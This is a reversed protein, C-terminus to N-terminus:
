CWSHTATITNSHRTDKWHLKNEVVHVEMIFLHKIFSIRMSFNCSQQRKISPIGDRLSTIMRGHITEWILTCLASMIVKQRRTISQKHCTAVNNMAGEPASDPINWSSQILVYLQLHRPGMNSPWWYDCTYHNNSHPTRVKDSHSDWCDDTVNWLLPLMSFPLYNWTNDPPYPMCCMIPHFEVALKPCLIIDYM